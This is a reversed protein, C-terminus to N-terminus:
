TPRAPSTTTATSRSRRRLDREGEREVEFELRELHRRGAGAPGGRGAALRPPGRADLRCPRRSRPPPTSRARSWRAGAVEGLLKSAVRQGWIATEPHLQKEFRTSAESRLGLVGSTRLINVGDWNAAELLVRTTTESVESVQGGMVGAIGTPRRPRLRPGDRRRADARRRRADDDERRRGGDPRDGRRRPGQGPRVRPAAARDAADRLQHHGRRELDSAAGRGDPPGEAVTAVPGDRGRHFRARHVAPM